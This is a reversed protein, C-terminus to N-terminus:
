HPPPLPPRNKNATSPLFVHLSKHLVSPSDADPYRSAKEYKDAAQLLGYLESLKGELGYCLDNNREEAALNDWAASCQEM